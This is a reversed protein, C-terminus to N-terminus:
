LVSCYVVTNFQLSPPREGDPSLTLTVPAARTPNGPAGRTSWTPLLPIPLLRVAVGPPRLDRVAGHAAGGQGPIGAGGRGRYAQGGRGRHGGPQTRPRV